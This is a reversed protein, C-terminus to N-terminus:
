MYPEWVIVYIHEGAMLWWSLVHVFKFHGQLKFSLYTTWKWLCSDCWRPCNYKKKKKRFAFFFVGVSEYPTDFFLIWVFYLEHMQFGKFWYPCLSPISLEHQSLHSDQGLIYRADCNVSFFFFNWQYVQMQPLAILCVVSFQFRWRCSM